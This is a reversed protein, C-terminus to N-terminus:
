FLQNRFIANLEEQHFVEGTESNGYTISCTELAPEICKKLASIVKGNLASGTEDDYVLSFTGRGAKATAKLLEDDAEDSIALTHVIIDENAAQRIIANDDGRNSHGDTVLIVRKNLAPDSGLDVAKQMAAEINTWDM